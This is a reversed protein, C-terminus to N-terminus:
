IQQNSKTFQFVILSVVLLISAVPFISRYGFSDILSGGILPGFIQPAAMSVIHFGVFEATRDKPIINLMYPYAVAMASALPIGVIGVTILAHWFTQSFGVSLQAIAWFGITLTLIKKRPFKDGAIGIPLVCLTMVFSSAMLILFSRGEAMGLQESAFLTIFPQVVWFGLWWLFQAAFFRLANTERAITALYDRIGNWESTEPQTESEKLNFFAIMVTVFAVLAVIYFVLAPNKDWIRSSLFFFALLGFGGFANMVGSAASQQHKPIIDALLSWYPTMGFDISFYIAASVLAVIAINSIHPLVVMLLSVGLVGLFIYPKRRGYRTKTRDSFYGAIPPVVCGSFGALSLVLAITFKSDSLNNLFLPMSGSYFAWFHQIGLWGLGLFVMNRIPAGSQNTM